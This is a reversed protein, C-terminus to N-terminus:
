AAVAAKAVAAELAATARAVGKTAAELAKRAAGEERGAAQVAKAAQEAAERARAAAAQAEERRVILAVRRELERHSDLDYGLASREETRTAHLSRASELAKAAQELAAEADCLARKAAEVATAREAAANAAERDARALDGLAALHERRATLREVSAALTAHETQLADIQDPAALHLQELQNRIVEARDKARTGRGSALRRVETYVGLGLLRTMIERRASQDGKLFSDFAGQPLLVTKTFTPYDLGLIRTVQETIERARDALGRWEGDATMEELRTAATGPTRRAVRYRKGRVSFEFLVSMAQEGHAILQRTSGGVRPVQGYLAWTMADLLSSKGAGTPGTIAFLRRGEFDVVAQERFATFGKVELRLPKM